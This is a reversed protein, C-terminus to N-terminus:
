GRTVPTNLYAEVLARIERETYVADKDKKSLAGTIVHPAVGIRQRCVERWTEVDWSPEAEIPATNVQEPRVAPEVVAPEPAVEAPAEVVAEPAKEEVAEVKDSKSNKGKSM